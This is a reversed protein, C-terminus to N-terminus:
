CKVPWRNLGHLGLEARSLSPPGWRAHPTLRPAHPPLVTALSASPPSIARGRGVGWAGREVSWHGFGLRFRWGREPLFTLSAAFDPQAPLFGGQTRVSGPNGGPEEDQVIVPATWAWGSRARGRGARAPRARDCLWIILRDEATVWNKRGEIGCDGHFGVVKAFGIELVKGGPATDAPGAVHKNGIIRRHEERRGAHVLELALEHSQAFGTELAVVQWFHMRVPSM